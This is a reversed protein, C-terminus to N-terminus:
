MFALKVIISCLFRPFIVNQSTNEVVKTIVMSIFCRALVGICSEKYGILLSVGTKSM